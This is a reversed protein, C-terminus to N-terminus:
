TWALAWWVRPIAPSSTSFSAKRGSRRSRSNNAGVIDSFDRSFYYNRAQLTASAGEIFGEKPPEGAALASTAAVATFSLGLRQGMVRFHRKAIPHQSM